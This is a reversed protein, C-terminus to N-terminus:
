GDIASDSDAATGIQSRCTNRIVHRAQDCLIQAPNRFEPPCRRTCLFGAHSWTQDTAPSSLIWASPTIRAALLASPDFFRINRRLESLLTTIRSNGGSAEQMCSSALPRATRYTPVRRPTARITDAMPRPLRVLALPGRVRSTFHEAARLTPSRYAVHSTAPAPFSSRNGLRARFPFGQLCAM